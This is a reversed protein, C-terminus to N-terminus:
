KEELTNNFMQGKIREKATQWHMRDTYHVAGSEDKYYIVAMDNLLFWIFPYKNNPDFGKIILEADELIREYEVKNDGKCCCDGDFVAMRLALDAIEAKRKWYLIINRALNDYNSKEM